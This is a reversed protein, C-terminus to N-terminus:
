TVPGLGINLQNREAFVAPLTGFCWLVYAVSYSNLHEWKLRKADCHTAEEDSIVETFTLQELLRLLGESVTYGRMSAKFLFVAIGERLEERLFVTM